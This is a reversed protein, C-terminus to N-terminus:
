ANIFVTFEMESTEPLRRVYVSGGLTAAIKQSIFLGIGSGETNKANSGRWFSGFVFSLESEPLLVGKNKVSISTGDNDRCMSITIGEGNGYKFANEILQSIIRFLGYKDSEIIPDGDCSVEFPIMSIRMRESYENLTLDRLEHLYFRSIEPIYANVSESSTSILEATLAEIRQTNNRIKQAIEVHDSYLGTEIADAYLSINTVPTKVGHAISAILTQRQYELKENQQRETRLVDALMNMGWIFRGFFRNRSEPLKEATPIKAIHEPYESLRRFPSLIRFHIYLATIFSILWCLVLILSFVIRFLIANDNKKKYVAFGILIDNNDRVSCVSTNNGGTCVFSSSDDNVGIFTIEEPMNRGFVSKWHPINDDILKQPAEDSVAIMECVDANIRNVTINIDSASRSSEYRYWLNFGTLIAAFLLTIGTLISILRKM